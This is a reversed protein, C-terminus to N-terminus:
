VEEEEPTEGALNGLDAKVSSFGDFIEQEEAATLGANELADKVKQELETIKTKLGAVDGRVNQVDKSLDDRLNEFEQKTAMNDTNNPKLFLSIASLVFATLALGTTIDQQTM